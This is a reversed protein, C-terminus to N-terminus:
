NQDTAQNMVLGPAVHLDHFVRTYQKKGELFGDALLMAAIKYAGASM